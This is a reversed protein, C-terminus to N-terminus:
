RQIKYVFDYNPSTRLTVTYSNGTTFTFPNGNLNCAPCSSGILVVLPTFTLPLCCNPGPSSYNLVYYDGVADAITYTVPTFAFSEQDNLDLTANTGSIFSYAELPLSQNTITEISIGSQFGNGRALLNVVGNGYPDSSVTVNAIASGGKPLYVSSPAVTPYLQGLTASLNLTGSIGNQSTMTITTTAPSHFLTLLAPSSAFGIGQVVLALSISHSIKGSSGTVAVTFNGTETPSVTLIAEGSMGLLILHNPNGTDIIVSLSSPATASLAVIGTFGNIGTVHIDFQASSLGGNPRTVNSTSNPIMVFDPKSGLFNLAVFTTTVAAGGLLVSVLLLWLPIPRKLVQIIKRARNLM